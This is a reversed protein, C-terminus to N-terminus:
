LDFLSFLSFVIFCGVSFSFVTQHFCFPFVVPPVGEQLVCLAGFSKRPFEPCPYSYFCLKGWTAHSTNPSSFDDSNAFAGGRVFTFPPFFLFAPSPTKYSTRQKLRVVEYSVLIHISLVLSPLCLEALPVSGQHSCQFFIKLHYAVEAFSLPRHPLVAQRPSSFFPTPRPAEPLFSFPVL